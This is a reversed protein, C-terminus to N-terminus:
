GLGASLTIMDDSVTTCEMSLPGAQVSEGEACSVTQGAVRLVAEGNEVGDYALTTGLIEVEAADPSLTATCTAGSCDVQGAVAAAASEAASEGASTASEVADEAGSTAAMDSSMEGASCGALPLFLFGGALM